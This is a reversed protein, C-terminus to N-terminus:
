AVVSPGRWSNAAFGWISTTDQLGAESGDHDYRWVTERRDPRVRVIELAGVSGERAPDHEDLFELTFDLADFYDDCTHRLGLDLGPHGRLGEHVEYNFQGAAHCFDDRAM